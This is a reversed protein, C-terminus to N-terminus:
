FYVSLHIPTVGTGLGIRTQIFPTFGVGSTSTGSVRQVGVGLFYAGGLTVGPALRVEAGLAVGAGVAYMSNSDRQETGDPATREFAVRGATGIVGAAVLPSVGRHRSARHREVWLAAELNRDSQNAEARDFTSARLGVSGGVVTHDSTWYRAGVGGYVPSLGGGFSTQAVLAVDGRETFPRSQATAPVALVVAFAVLAIRM